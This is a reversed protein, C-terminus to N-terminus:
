GINFTPYLIFPSPIRYETLSIHKCTGNGTGTASGGNGHAVGLHLGPKALLRRNRFSFPFPALPPSIPLHFSTPVWARQERREGGEPEYYM